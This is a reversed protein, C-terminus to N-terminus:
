VVSKRDTSARELSRSTDQLWARLLAASSPKEATRLVTAMYGDSVILYPLRPHWTVSFRQRLVDRASMSSSSLSADKTGM